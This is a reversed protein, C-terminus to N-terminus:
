TNNRKQAWRPRQGWLKVAQESQDTRGEPLVPFQAAQQFDIPCGGAAGTEEARWLLGIQRAEALGTPCGSRWIWSNKFQKKM